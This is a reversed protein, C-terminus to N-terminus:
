RFLYKMGTPTFFERSETNNLGARPSVWSGTCQTGPSMELVFRGPHTASWEDGDITSTLFLHLQADVGGVLVPVFIGRTTTSTTWNHEILFHKKKEFVCSYIDQINIKM